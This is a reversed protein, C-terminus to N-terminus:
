KKGKKGGAPKNARAITQAARVRSKRAKRAEAIYAASKRYLWDNASKWHSDESGHLEHAWAKLSLKTGSARWAAKMRKTPNIVKNPNVGTGPLDSDSM